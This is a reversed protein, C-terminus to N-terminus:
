YRQRETQLSIKTKRKREKKAKSRRQSRGRRASRARKAKTESLLRSSFNFEMLNGKSECTDNKQSQIIKLLRKEFRCLYSSRSKLYAKVKSKHKNQTLWM